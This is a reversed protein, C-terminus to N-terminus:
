KYLLHFLLIRFSNYVICRSLFIASSNVVIPLWKYICNNWVEITVRYLFSETIIMRVPSYRSKKNSCKQSINEEQVIKIKTKNFLEKYIEQCFKPKNNQPPHTRRHTVLERTSPDFLATVVIVQMRFEGFFWAHEIVAEEKERSVGTTNIQIIFLFLPLYSQSLFRKSLILQFDFNFLNHM